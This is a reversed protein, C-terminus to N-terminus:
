PTAKTLAEVLFDEAARGIGPASQESNGAVNLIRVGHGALWEILADTAKMGAYLPSSTPVMFGWAGAKLDLRPKRYREIARLTCIEGPSHFDSAVRLTADTAHVCKATRHAYDEVGTEVLGYTSGLAPDPGDLTRWGLPAYGGTALGLRAAARLASQDVGTQGGSILAELLPLRESVIQPNPSQKLQLGGRAIRPLSLSTEAKPAM